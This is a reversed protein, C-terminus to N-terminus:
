AWSSKLEHVRLHTATTTGGTCTISISRHHDEPFVVRPIYVRGDNAYVEISTRDLLIRLRVVDDIPSLRTETGCSSLSETDTDYTIRFGRM